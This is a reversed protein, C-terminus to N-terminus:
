KEYLRVHTSSASIWYGSKLKVVPYNKGASKITGREVVTFVDGKKVPKGVVTSATLDKKDHLNLSPAVIEAYLTKKPAPKAPAPKAAPPKPAPKPAPKAPAKAPPKPAPKAPAKEPKYTVGFFTCLARTQQIAREEIFKKDLMLLAEKKHDMFGNEILVAPIHSPMKAIVYFDAAKMGRNVQGKTKAMEALLKQALYKDRKPSGGAVFVTFGSPDYKDFKGDFADYHNSVFVDAKAAVARKVRDELSTYKDGPATLVVKFGLRKMHHAIRDTVARNFENEKIRRKLEPIFPTMKSGELYMDHGDDLAVVILEPKVKPSM